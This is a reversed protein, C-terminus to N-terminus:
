LINKKPNNGIVHVSIQKLEKLAEKVDDINQYSEEGLM